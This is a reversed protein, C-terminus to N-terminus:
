SSNWLSTTLERQVRGSLPFYPFLSQFTTHHNADEARQANAQTQYEFFLFTGALRALM